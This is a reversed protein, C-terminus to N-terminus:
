AKVAIVKLHQKNTARKTMIEMVYFSSQQSSIPLGVQGILFIAKM